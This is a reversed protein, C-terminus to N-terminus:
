DHRLACEIEFWWRPRWSILLPVGTLNGEVGYVVTFPTEEGTTRNLVCFRGRTAPGFSRGERTHRDVHEASRLQLEYLQGNYPYTRVFHQARSAKGAATREEEMLSAAAALFGPSTWQPMAVTKTKSPAAPVASLLVDLDAYTLDKQVRVDSITVRAQSETLSQRLAKFAHIGDTRSTNKDADEVSQEDSQSMVGFVNAGNAGVEERLYGWRNIRRPTRAPDSGVLLEYGITGDPGKRWTLRGDGINSKRIWFLFPRVRVDVQYQRERSVEVASFSAYAQPHASQGHVRELTCWVVATLIVASSIRRANM